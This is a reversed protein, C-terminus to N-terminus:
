FKDATVPYRSGVGGVKSVRKLPHSGTGSGVFYRLFTGISQPLDFKEDDSGAGKAHPYQHISIGTTKYKISHYWFRAMPDIPRNAAHKQRRSLRQPFCIVFQITYPVKDNKFPPLNIPM